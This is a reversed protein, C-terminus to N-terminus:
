CSGVIESIRSWTIQDIKNGGCLVPLWILSCTGRWLKCIYAWVRQGMDSPFPYLPSAPPSARTMMGTSWASPSTLWPFLTVSHGRFLLSSPPPPHTADSGNKDENDRSTTDFTADLPFPTLHHRIRHAASAVWPRIRHAGLRIRRAYCCRWRGRRGGRCPSTTSWGAGDDSQEARDGFGGGLV